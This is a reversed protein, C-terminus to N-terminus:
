SGDRVYDVVIQDILQEVPALDDTFVHGTRPALRLNGEHLARIAPVRASGRAASLRARVTSLSMRTSLGYVLSNITGPVDVIVVTPFVTSMTHAMADVLRYDQATHGCNVAVVGGPRLRDRALSFFEQTTLQFPIYPQRFADLTIVNYRRDNTLLFYRADEVHVALNPEHLDFYRRATDVIAPDIEVGDLRARPATAALLRAVTGGGLGLIVASRLDKTSGRLLPALLFYDWYEGTLLRGPDYVSHVAHGEDLVLSRQRGEQTVQIYYYASERQFILRGSEASRVVGAPLVLQVASPLLM